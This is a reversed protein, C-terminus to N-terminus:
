LRIRPIAGQSQDHSLFMSRLIENTVMIKLRISELCLTGELTGSRSVSSAGSKTKLDKHHLEKIEQLGMTQKKVRRQVATAPGPASTNTPAVPADTSRNHLNTMNALYQLITLTTNQVEKRSTTIRGIKIKQMNKSYDSGSHRPSM